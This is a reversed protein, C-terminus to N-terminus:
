IFYTSPIYQSDDENEKRKRPSVRLAARLTYDVIMELLRAKLDEPLRLGEWLINVFNVIQKAFDENVIQQERRVHQRLTVIIRQLLEEIDKYSM